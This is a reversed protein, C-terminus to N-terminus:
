KSSYSRTRGHTNYIYMAATQSERHGNPPSHIASGFVQSQEDTRVPRYNM